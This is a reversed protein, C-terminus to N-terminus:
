NRPSAQRRRRRGVLGLGVILGLGLASAGGDRSSQCCGGGDSDDRVCYDTAGVEACAFGDGCADGGVECAQSCYPGRPDRDFCVGTACLDEDDCATGLGLQCAGDVCVYEGGDDPCADCGAAVTITRTAEAENGSYDRVTVTLTYSGPAADMVEVVYHDLTSVGDSAVVEGDLSVEVVSIGVNDTALADVTFTPPLTAGDAPALLELTPPEEELAREGVYERLTAASNTTSATTCSCPQPEGPYTGCTSAQDVFDKTAVQSTLVYSMMDTALTEHELALLHGVEHAITACLEFDPNQENEHFESFSFAIGRETVGCFNSAAAVGYLWNDGVLRGHGGVVAEIYTTDAPPEDEVFVLNYPAYAERVCQSIWPWDFYDTDLPPITASAQGNAVYPAYNTTSDTGGTGGTFTYTGGEINFYITRPLDGEAPAGV